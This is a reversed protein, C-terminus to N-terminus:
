VRKELNPGRKSAPPSLGKLFPFINQALIPIRNHSVILLLFLLDPYLNGQRKTFLYQQYIVPLMHIQVPFRIITM